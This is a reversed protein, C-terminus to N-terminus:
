KLAEIGDFLPKYMEPKVENINGIGVTNMVQQIQAGKTPGLQKYAAMVYTILEKQTTFPVPAPSSPSAVVPAAPATVPPVTVTVTPIPAATPAAPAAVVPAPAPTAVPMAVPTPNSAKVQEAVAVRDPEPLKAILMEICRINALVAEAILSIESKM